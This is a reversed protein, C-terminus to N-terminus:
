CSLQLQYGDVFIVEDAISLNTDHYVPTTAIVLRSNSSLACGSLWPGLDLEIPAKAEMGFPYIYVTGKFYYSSVQSVTLANQIEKTTQITDWRADIIEDQCVYCPLM